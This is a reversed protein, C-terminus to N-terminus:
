MLVEKYRNGFSLQPIWGGSTDPKGSGQATAHGSNVVRVTYEESQDIRKDSLQRCEDEYACPVEKLVFMGYGPTAKSERFLLEKRKKGCCKERMKCIDAFTYVNDGRLLVIAKPTKMAVASTM